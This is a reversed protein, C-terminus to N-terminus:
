ESDHHENGQCSAACLGFSGSGFGGLSISGYCINGCCISGCCISGCCGCLGVFTNGDVNQAVARGVGAEHLFIQIFKGSLGTDFDVVLLQSVILQVGLDSNGHCGAASVQVDEHVHCVLVGTHVHLVAPQLRQVAINVFLEIDLVVHLATQVEAGNVALQVADGM